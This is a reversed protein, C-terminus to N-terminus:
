NILRDLSLHHQLQQLLYLHRPKVQFNSTKNMVVDFVVPEEFIIGFFLIRLM